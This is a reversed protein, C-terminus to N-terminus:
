EVVEEAAVFMQVKGALVAAALPIAHTVFVLQIEEVIVRDLQELVEVVVPEVLTQGEVALAVLLVTVMGTEM